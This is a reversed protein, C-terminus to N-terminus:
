GRARWAHLPVVVPRPAIPADAVLARDIMLAVDHCAQPPLGHPSQSAESLVQAAANLLLAPTM